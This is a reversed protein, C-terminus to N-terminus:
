ECDEEEEPIQKLGMLDDLDFTEYFTRDEPPVPKLYQEDGPNIDQFCIDSALGISIDSLVWWHFPRVSSKRLVLVRSEAGGAHYFTQARGPRPYLSPVWDSAPTNWYQYTKNIEKLEKLTTAFRKCQNVYFQSHSKAHRYREMMSTYLPFDGKTIAREIVFQCMEMEGMYYKANSKARALEFEQTKIQSAPVFSYTQTLM